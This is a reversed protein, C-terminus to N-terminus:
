AKPRTKLIEIRKEFREGQLIRHVFIGPTHIHDPELDGVGVLEEVEAITVRVATAMVPNFNRASKRYILNGMPDGRWAKVLAFDAKLPFELLYEVGDIVKKEKGEEVVTGVGVPTYFGGIGAGGARMREVFTGQPILEVELEGALFLEEYLKNAGIRSAIMKRVQRKHFLVGVGWDDIGAANSIVTLNKTGREKLAALLNEPAGCIGFSGVMISAGDEIDHIAERATKFVQAM